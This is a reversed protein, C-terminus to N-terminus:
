SEEGTVVIARAPCSQAANRASNELDQGLERDLLVVLGTKDDQTFLQPALRVCQGAGVCEHVDVDIHIRARRIENRSM